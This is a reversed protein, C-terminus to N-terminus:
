IGAEILQFDWFRSAPQYTVLVYRSTQSAELAWDGLHGTMSTTNPGFTINTSAPLHMTLPQQFHQRVLLDFSLDEVALVPGFRKTLRHVGIVAM